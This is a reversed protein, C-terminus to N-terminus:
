DAGKVVDFLVINALELGFSDVGAALGKTWGSLAVSTSWAQDEVQGGSLTHVDLDCAAQFHTFFAAVVTGLIELEVFADADWLDMVTEDVLLDSLLENTGFALLSAVQDVSFTAISVPFLGDLIVAVGGEDLGGGSLTDDRIAFMCVFPTAVLAEIVEVESM